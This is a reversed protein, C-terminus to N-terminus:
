RSASGRQLSGSARPVAKSHARDRLLGILGAWEKRASILRRLGESIFAFPRHTGTGGATRFDVPYPTVPFGDKEFVGVARPM